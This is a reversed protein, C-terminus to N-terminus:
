RSDSVERRPSTTFDWDVMGAFQPLMGIDCSGVDQPVPKGWRPSVTTTGRVFRVHAGVIATPRSVSAILTPFRPARSWPQGAACALILSASKAALSPVPPPLRVQLAGGFQLVRFFANRPTAQFLPFGGVGVARATSELLQGAPIQVGVVQDLTLRAVTVGGPLSPSNFQRDYRM